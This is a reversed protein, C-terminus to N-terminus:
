FRCAAYSSPSPLRVYSLQGSSVLDHVRRRYEAGSECVNFQQCDYAIFTSEGGVHKFSPHFRSPPIPSQQAFVIQAGTDRVLSHLITQTLSPSEHPKFRGSLNISVLSTQLHCLESM